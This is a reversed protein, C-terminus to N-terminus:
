LVAGLLLLVVLAVIIFYLPTYPNRNCVERSVAYTHFGFGDEVETWNPVPHGEYTLIGGDVLLDLEKKLDALEMPEEVYGAAEFLDFRRGYQGFAKLISEILTM